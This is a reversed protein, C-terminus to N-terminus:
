DEKVSFCSVRKGDQRVIELAGLRAHPPLDFQFEGAAKEEGVSLVLAIKGKNGKGCELCTWYATGPEKVLPAAGCDACAGMRVDLEVTTVQTVPVPADPEPVPADKLLFPEGKANLLM